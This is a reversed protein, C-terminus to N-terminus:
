EEKAVEEEVTEEKKEVDKYGNITINFIRKKISGKKGCNICKIQEPLPNAVDDELNCYNKFGCKGCEFQLLNMDIKEKLKEPEIEEVKEPVVISDLEKKAEEEKKVEEETLDKYEEPNEAPVGVSVEKDSEEIVKNVEEIPVDQNNEEEM